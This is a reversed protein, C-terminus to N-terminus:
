APAHATGAHAAELAALDLKRMAFMAQATRAAAEADGTFLRSMGAPKIQWSLGFRDKCWGCPGEEGGDTLAAWHHDIEDQDACEVVLSTAESFTFQPGGNIAEFRQGLMEWEVVMPTGAKDTGEPYPAVTVIRADEFRSCYYEAAEVAQTDFWLSTIIRQTSMRTFRACGRSSM